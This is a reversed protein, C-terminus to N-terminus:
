PWVNDASFFFTSHSSILQQSQSSLATHQFNTATVPFFLAAVPILNSSSPPFHQLQFNNATALFSM